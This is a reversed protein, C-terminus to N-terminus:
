SFLGEKILETYKSDWRVQYTHLEEYLKFSAPTYDVRLTIGSFTESLMNDFTPRHRVVFTIYADDTESGQCSSFPIIAYMYKDIIHQVIPAVVADVPIKVDSTLHM